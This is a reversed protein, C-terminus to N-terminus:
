QGSQGARHVQRFSRVRLLEHLRPQQNKNDRCHNQEQQQGQQLVRLQLQRALPVLPRHQRPLLLNRQPILPM